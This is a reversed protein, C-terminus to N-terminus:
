FRRFFKDIDNYWMILWIEIYFLWCIHFNAYLFHQDKHFKHMHVNIATTNQALICFHSFVRLLHQCICNQTTYYNLQWVLSSSRSFFILFVEQCAMCFIIYYIMNDAFRQHLETPLAASKYDAPRPNLDTWWSWNLIPSNGLPWLPCVTFRNSRSRHNSDMKEWWVQAIFYICVEFLEYKRAKKANQPYFNWTYFRPHKKTFFSRFGWCNFM